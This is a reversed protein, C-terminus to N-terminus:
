ETVLHKTIIDQINELWSEPLSASNNIIPLMPRAPVNGWPIPGGGKSTGYQGKKAGFQHTGAYVKTTGIEVSTRDAIYSFSEALKGTDSLIRADKGEDRRKELTVSSLPSWPTGWPDSQSRFTLAVDERLSNGIGDMAHTLDGGRRGLSNLEDFVSGADFVFSIFGKDSM